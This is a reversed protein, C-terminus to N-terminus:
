KKDPVHRASATGGAGGAESFLQELIRNAASVAGPRDSVLHHHSLGPTGNVELVTINAGPSPPAAAVIVDVGALRVGVVAAARAATSVLEPSISETVTDNEEPANESTSTKVVIREGAAAVSRLRLGAQELTFVCDLDFRLLWLGDRGGAAIRRENEASMLQWIRSRGDSVVMPSRRRVAGLLEGDLLLVRLLDGEVQREILLRPGYRAASFTARRLQSPERVSPTVGWGAGTGAAPKVVCPGSRAALFEEAAALDGAAFELHEPVRLGAEELLTHVLSKDAALEVTAADDLMVSQHSVRTAVGGRRLELHQETLDVLEAGVEAAAERWIERYLFDRPKPRLDEWSRAQRRRLRAPRLGLSRLLDLPALLSACRLAANWGVPM